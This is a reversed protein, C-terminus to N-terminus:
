RPKDVSFDYIDVKDGVCECESGLHFLTESDGVSTCVPVYGYVALAAQRLWCLGDGVVVTAASSVM